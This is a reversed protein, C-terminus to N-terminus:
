PNQGVTHRRLLQKGEWARTAYTTKALPAIVGLARLKLSARANFDGDSHSEDSLTSEWAHHTGGERGRPTGCGSVSDFLGSETLTREYVSM